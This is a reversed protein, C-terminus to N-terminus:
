QLKHNQSGGGHKQTCLACYTPPESNDVIHKVQKAHRLGAFIMKLDEDSMNRYWLWPMAGSLGRAGVKGSRLVRIFMVEDYYGIGSPDSTINPTFVLGTPSWITNGGAFPLGGVASGPHYWDTHCGICDAVSALYGGYEAYDGEAGKLHPGTIPQPIGTTQLRVKWPLHTRPLQNRIAPITRLYVVVSAVDEDSLDSFSQYPMVPDLARGDHGIGERIARALMDDSWTGAGTERDPTINPATLWPRNEDAFIHGAGEKGAVAPAGPQSWDRDSHCRYCSLPGQVLYRGRELRAATHEFVTNRLPRSDPGAVVRWIQPYINWGLFLGAVIGAVVLTVVVGVITKMGRLITFWVRMAGPFRM